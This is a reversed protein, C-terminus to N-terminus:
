YGLIVAKRSGILEAGELGIVEVQETDGGRGLLPEEAGLPLGEAVGM